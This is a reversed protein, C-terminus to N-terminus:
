VYQYLKREAEADLAKAENDSMAVRNLEDKKIRLEQIQGQCRQDAGWGPVRRDRLCRSYELNKFKVFDELAPRSLTM